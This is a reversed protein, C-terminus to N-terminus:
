HIYDWPELTYGIATGTTQEDNFDPLVLVCVWDCLLRQRRRVEDGEIVGPFLSRAFDMIRDGELREAFVGMDDCNGCRAIYKKSFTDLTSLIQDAVRGEFLLNM